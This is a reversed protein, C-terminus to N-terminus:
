RLKKYYQKVKDLSTANIQAQYEEVSVSDRYYYGEMSELAASLLWLFRAHSYSFFDLFNINLIWCFKLCLKLVCQLKKFIKVVESQKVVVNCMFMLSMLYMILIYTIM